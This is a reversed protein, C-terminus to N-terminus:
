STIITYKNYPLFSLLFVPLLFFASKHFLLSFAILLVGALYSLLRKKNKCVIMSYGGFAIAFALSVRGYAFLLLFSAIFIYFFSNVNLNLRRIILIIFALAGGWIYFRFLYYSDFSLWALVTYVKEIHSESTKEFFSLLSFDNIDTKSIIGYIEYYHFWDSDVFYFVCFVSILIFYVFINNSYKYTRNDCLCIAKKKNKYAYM